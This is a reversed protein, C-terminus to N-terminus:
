GSGAGLFECVTRRHARVEGAAETSFPDPCEVGSRQNCERSVGQVYRLVDRAVREGAFCNIGGHNRNFKRYIPRVQHGCSALFAASTPKMWNRRIRGTHRDVVRWRGSPQHDFWRRLLRKARVAQVQGLEHREIKVPLRDYFRTGWWRGPREWTELGVSSVLKGLYKTAYSTVGNWSKIPELCPRNGLEGLHWKLHNPDGEGAISHWAEAIWATMTLLQRRSEGFLMLHYHAAGREQPELKWFLPVKGWVRQFRQLFVRLHEKSQRPTVFVSPYTLTAMGVAEARVKTQDISNIKQQMRQRSAWSFDGVEGRVGGGVPGPGPAKLHVYRGGIAFSLSPNEVKRTCNHASSLHAPPPPPGPPAVGRAAVAPWSEAPKLDFLTGRLDIDGPILASIAM